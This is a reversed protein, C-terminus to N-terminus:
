GKACGTGLAAVRLPRSKMATILRQDRGYIDSRFAIKGDEGAYATWYLFYVPLRTKLPLFSTEGTGMRDMIQAIVSQDAALAYSALPLIQEVRVCGHSFARSPRGFLSKAPTDHLYVDMRNPLELKVQGLSNHPGPLQRIVYPFRDARIARWHVSLGQPDGSPGNVLVMDQSVLYAPNRKLKPLIEKVAVTHPVTWPPNVTVGVGEARLIPTPTAPKGVIVRSHLVPKGGLRFELEQNAANIVIRNAELARPLWRWREMNAALIDRQGADATGTLAKRLADYEAHAPPLSALLAALQDHRLADDLLSAADFLRQPLSVDSDLGELEPRGVSVDRMYRLLTESMVVDDAPARGSQYVAYRGQDLGEEAARDLVARAIRANAVAAPSGSWSLVYGRLQYFRATIGGDDLSSLSQQIQTASPQQQAQAPFAVLLCIALRRGIQSFTRGRGPAKASSRPRALGGTEPPRSTLRMPM